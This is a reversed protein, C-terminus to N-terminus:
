AAPAVRDVAWTAPQAKSATSEASRVHGGIVWSCGYADMYRFGYADMHM